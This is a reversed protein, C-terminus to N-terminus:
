PLHLQLTSIPVDVLCQSAFPHLDYSGPLAEHDEIASGQDTFDVRPDLARRDDLVPDGGGVSAMSQLAHGSVSQLGHRPVPCCVSVRPVRM